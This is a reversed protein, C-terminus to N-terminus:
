IREFQLPLSPPISRTGLPAAILRQTTHACGVSPGSSTQAKWTKPWPSSQAVPFRIMHSKRCRPMSRRAGRAGASLRSNRTPARSSSATLGYANLGHFSHPGHLRQLDDLGLGLEG